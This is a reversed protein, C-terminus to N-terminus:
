PTEGLYPFAYSALWAFLLTHSLLSGVFSPTRRTRWLSLGCCLNLILSLVFCVATYRGGQYAVGYSWWRFFYAMSLATAVFFSVVSRLPVGTAGGFLQLNWLWFGVVLSVAVMLRPMGLYALFLLPVPDPSGWPLTTIGFLGLSQMGFVGLLSGAIITAIVPKWKM